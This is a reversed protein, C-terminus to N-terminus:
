SAACQCRGAAVELPNIIAGSTEMVDAEAAELLNLMDVLSRRDIM